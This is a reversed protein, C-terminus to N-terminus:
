AEREVEESALCIIIKRGDISLSAYTGEYPYRDGQGCEKWLAHAEAVDIVEGTMGKFPGETARVVTGREFGIELELRFGSPYRNWWSSCWPGISVLRQARVVDFYQQMMDDLGAETECYLHEERYTERWVRLEDEWASGLWEAAIRRYLAAGGSTFTVENSTLGLAGPVAVLAEDGDVLAFVDKLTEDNVIRM